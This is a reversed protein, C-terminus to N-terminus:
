TGMMRRAGTALMNFGVPSLRVLWDSLYADPGVRVRRKNKEIGSVIKGAVTEPKTAFKMLRASTKLLSTKTQVRANKLINTNIGGPHICTVGVGSGKLEIRLSETFGRVAFKTACYSSQAPLGYFGFMSSINVIHGDGSSKLYPLFFKCGYVVGWLNIGVIWEFDDISQNEFSGTIEVGANNVIINVRGHEAVVHEPFAQMAAKDSVDVLHISAKRGQANIMRATEALGEENLDALALDCGQAALALSTARGIGSAAGTVVAVKNHFSFM